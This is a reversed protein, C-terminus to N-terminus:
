HSTVDPTIINITFIIQSFNDEFKKTTVTYALKKKIIDNKINEDIDYSILFKYNIDEYQIGLRNSTKLESEDIFNIIKNNNSILYQTFSNSNEKSLIQSNGNIAFCFTFIIHLKFKYYKKM